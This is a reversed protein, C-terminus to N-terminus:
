IDIGPFDAGIEPHAADRPSLETTPQPWRIGVRPDRANIGGEASAEYPVSVLYVLESNGTLTQFGHAFGEPVVLTRHNDESLIEGHWKLFSPSGRRLDVAVDFVAGRVCSVYKKEAHPPYQFHMGRVTGRKNTLSHNIQAIGTAFGLTKLREACYFREFYGRTDWLPQRQVVQLGEIATRIIEFRETM